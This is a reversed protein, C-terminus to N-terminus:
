RKRARAKGGGRTTRTAERAARKQASESSGYVVDDVAGPDVDFTGILEDLPDTATKATRGYHGAV